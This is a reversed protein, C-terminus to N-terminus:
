PCQCKKALHYRIVEDTLDIGHERFVAAATTAYVTKDAVATLLETVDGILSGSATALFVGVRCAPGRAKQAVRAEDLLSM